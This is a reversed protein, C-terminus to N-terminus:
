MRSILSIRNIIIRLKELKDLLSISTELSSVALAGEFRDIKCNVLGNGISAINSLKVVVLSHYTCKTQERRTVHACVRM